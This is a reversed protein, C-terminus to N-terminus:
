EDPLPDRVVPPALDNVLGPVEEGRRAAQQQALAATRSPAPDPRQLAAEPDSAIYANIWRLGPDPDILIAKVLLTAQLGLITGLPGLAWTWVFLSLISVTATVGVADGNFKPQIIGQIAFNVTSYMVVVLLARLPDFALLAMLAPPIVGLIFGVTPIFNTFFSLFGWVIALPIGMVQLLITDAVAVILGFVATVLWYRRVGQAFDVLSTILGPKSRAGALFRAIVTPADTVIGVLITFFIMMGTMLNVTGGLIGSLYTMIKEPSFNKLMDVIQGPSMGFSDLLAIVQAVLNNFADTYQPKMLEQVLASGSWVIVGIFAGITALILVGGVLGGVIEPVKRRVLARQIPFVVIWLNIVLFLPTIISALAQIGSFTIWGAALLVLIAIARNLTGARVIEQKIQSM